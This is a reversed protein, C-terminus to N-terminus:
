PLIPPGRSSPVPTDLIRSLAAPLAFPTQAPVAAVVITAKGSVAGLVTSLSGHFDCLRDQSSKGAPPKAALESSAPGGAHWIQHALALHQAGLFAIVLLVRALRANM